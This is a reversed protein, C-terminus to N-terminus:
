TFFTNVVSDAGICVRIVCIKCSRSRVPDPGPVLVSQPEPTMVFTGFGGQPARGAVSLPDNAGIGALRGALVFTPVHVLQRIQNQV